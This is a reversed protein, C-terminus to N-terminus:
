FCTFFIFCCKFWLLNRVSKLHIYIINKDWDLNKWFYCHPFMNSIFKNSFTVGPFLSPLWLSHFHPSSFLISFHMNLQSGSKPRWPAWDHMSMPFGWSIWALLMILGKEVAWPSLGLANLGGFNMSTEWAHISLTRRYRIVLCLLLGGAPLSLYGAQDWALDQWTAGPHIQNFDEYSSTEVALILIPSNSAACSNNQYLNNETSVM